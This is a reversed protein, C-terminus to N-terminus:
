RLVICFIPISRTLLRPKPKSAIVTMLMSAPVISSMHSPSWIVSRPMPLPMESMMVMPMTARRGAANIWAHCM